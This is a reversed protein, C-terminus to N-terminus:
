ITDITDIADFALIFFTIKLNFFIPFFCYFVIFVIFVIFFQNNQIKTSIINEMSGYMMALAFM